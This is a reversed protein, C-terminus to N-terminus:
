DNEIGGENNKLNETVKPEYMFGRCAVNANKTAIATLANLVVEAGICQLAKEERKYMLRM